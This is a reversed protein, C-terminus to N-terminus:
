NYMDPVQQDFTPVTLDDDMMGGMAAWNETFIDGWFDNEDATSKELHKRGEEEGLLDTMFNEFVGPALDNMSPM